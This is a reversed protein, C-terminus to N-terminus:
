MGPFPQNDKYAFEEDRIRMFKKAMAKSVEMAENLRELEEPTLSKGAFQKESCWLSFVIAQRSTM